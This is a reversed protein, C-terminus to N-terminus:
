FPVYSYERTQPYLSRFPDVVLSDNIWSNLVRANQINPVRGGGERDINDRGVDECLITNFDGGLIIPNGWRRLIMEIDRYFGVDNGNPGYVTGITLRVGKVTIDSIYVNDDGRGYYTNHIVHQINRRIAIGVGRSEKSSNLYLKYSGNVTLGFLRKIEEGKDKVRVDTLLIIDAKKGTVGEIKLYTKANSKGLTSVNLSNVNIASITLNTKNVANM